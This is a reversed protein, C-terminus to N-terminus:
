KPKAERAKELNLCRKICTPCAAPFEQDCTYGPYHTCYGAEVLELVAKDREAKTAGNRAIELMKNINEIEERTM